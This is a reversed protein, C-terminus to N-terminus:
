KMATLLGDSTLFYMTGGALVPPPVTKKSEWKWKELGTQSDIAYLIRDECNTYLTDGAIMPQQCPRKTKFRWKELGTAADISVINAYQEGYFVSEKFLVLPTRAGGEKRSKWKLSGDNLAYARIEGDNHLVFVRDDLISPAFFDRGIKTEWKKTGTRRDLSILLGSRSFLVLDDGKIAPGYLSEDSKFIWRVAGSDAALAFLGTNAGCIYVVGDDVAPPSYSFSRDKQEIIWKTKRTNVDYAYVRGSNTGFFATHGIVAPASLRNREFELTVLQRGNIADIAYFYAAGIDVTFFLIGQSVIPFSFGYGTPFDGTIRLVRNEYTYPVKSVIHFLKELKWIVQEPPTDVSKTALARSRQANGEAMAADASPNQMAALPLQAQNQFRASSAPGNLAVLCLAVLAQALFSATPTRM